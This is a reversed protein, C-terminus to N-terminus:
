FHKFYCFFGLSNFFGFCFGYICNELLGNQFSGHIKYILIYFGSLCVLAIFKMLSFLYSVNVKQQKVFEKHTAQFM